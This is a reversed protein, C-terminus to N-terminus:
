ASIKNRLVYGYIYVGLSLASLPIQGTALSFLKAVIDTTYQRLLHCYVNTKLKNIWYSSFKTCVAM